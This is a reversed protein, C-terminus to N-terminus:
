LLAKKNGSIDDGFTVRHRNANKRKKGPSSSVSNDPDSFDGRKKKQSKKQESGKPQRKRRDDSRRGVRRSNCKKQPQRQQPKKEPM